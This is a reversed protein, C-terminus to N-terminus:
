IMVNSLTAVDTIWVYRLHLFHYIIGATNYVFTRVIYYVIGTFGFFIVVPLRVRM